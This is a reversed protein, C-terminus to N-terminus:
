MLLMQRELDRVRDELNRKDQELGDIRQELDNIRTSLEDSVGASGATAFDEAKNAAIEEIESQRWTKPMDSCAGLTLCIAGVALLRIQMKAGKTRARRGTLPRADCIRLIYGGTKHPKTCSSHRNQTM